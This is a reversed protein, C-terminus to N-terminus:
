DCKTLNLNVETHTVKFFVIKVREDGPFFELTPGILGDQGGAPDPKDGGM